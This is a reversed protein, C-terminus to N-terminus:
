MTGKFRRMFLKSSRFFRKEENRMRFISSDQRYVWQQYAIDLCEFLQEDAIPKRLYRLASVSYGECAHFNKEFLAFIPM